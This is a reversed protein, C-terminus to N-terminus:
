RGLAKKAEDAKEGELGFELAKSFAAEAEAENYLAAHTKGLHYQIEPNQSLKSVSEKILSLALLYDGRRYNIWGLTDAIQPNTPRLDRARMAQNYAEDINDFHEANIYALNNLATFNNSDVAIIKMYTSRASAFDKKQHEHIGGIRILAEIDKANLDLMAQLKELAADPKKAMTYHVSLYLYADRLTPKLEIARKLELEGAANDEATFLVKGKLMHLYAPDDAKQFLSDIRNTAEDFRRSAIDLDTLRELSIIFNPNRDLSREFAAKAEDTKGQRLLVEAEFRPPVPNTELQKGLSQYLMLAEDLHEAELHIQALLTQAQVNERNEHLVEELAIIAAEPDGQRANLAAQMLIAENHNPNIALTRTLHASTKIPENNALHALALQYELSDLDPFQETSRELQLIAEDFQNQALKLRSSLLIADPNYPTLGLIEDALKTAEDFKADSSILQAKLTLAPVFRPEDELIEEILKNATEKDGTRYKYQAYIFQKSPEGKSLDFSAQYFSNAKDIENRALHLSGLAAHAEGLEPDLKISEKFRVEAVDFNSEIADILGLTLLAVASPNTTSLGGILTRADGLRQLSLAANQLAFLATKNTPDKELVFSAEEWAEQPIGVQQMLASLKSRYNLNDPALTRAQTLFPYAEVLRGQRYYILGINGVAESISSDFQLVNKYEIEATRFDGRAFSENGRNLHEELQAKQSCGTFVGVISITLLLIKPLSQTEM